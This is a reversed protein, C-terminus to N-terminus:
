DDREQRKIKERSRGTHNRNLNVSNSGADPDAGDKGGSLRLTGRGIGSRRIVPTINKSQNQASGAAGESFNQRRAGRAAHPVARPSARRQFLPPTRRKLRSPPTANASIRRRFVSPCASCRRDVQADGLPAGCPSLPRTLSLRIRARAASDSERKPFLCPLCPPKGKM